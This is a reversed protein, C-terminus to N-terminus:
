YPPYLIPEAVLFASRRPLRSRREYKKCVFNQKKWAEATQSRYFEAAADDRFILFWVRSLQTPFVPERRDSPPSRVLFSNRLCIVSRVM